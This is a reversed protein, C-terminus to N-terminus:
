LNTQQFVFPLKGADQRSPKAEKQASVKVEDPKPASDPSPSKRTVLEPAVPSADRRTKRRKAVMQPHRSLRKMRRGTGTETVPTVVDRPSDASGESTKERSEDSVRPELSSRGSDGAPKKSASRTV